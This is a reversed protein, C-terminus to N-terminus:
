TKEGNSNDPEVHAQVENDKTVSDDVKHIALIGVFLENSKQLRRVIQTVAGVFMGAAVIAFGLEMIGQWVNDNKQEKM